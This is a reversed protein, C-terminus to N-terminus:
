NMLISKSSGPYRPLMLAPLSSIGPHQNRAHRPGWTRVKTGHKESYPRALSPDSAAGVLQGAILVADSADFGRRCITKKLISTRIRHAQAAAKRAKLPGKPRAKNVPDYAGDRKDELDSM